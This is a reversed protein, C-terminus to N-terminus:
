QDSGSMRRLMWERIPAATLLSALLTALTVALLAALTLPRSLTAPFLWRGAGAIVLAAALSYGVDEVYWRVRDGSLLARHMLSLNGITCAANVLIVIWAVAAPGDREAAIIMLPLGAVIALLNVRFALGTWGHALQLAFPVRNLAALAAGVILLSLIGHSNEVVDRNGTWANLVESSYLCVIAMAPFVVASLV